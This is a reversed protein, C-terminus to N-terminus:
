DKIQDTTTFHYETLSRFIEGPKLITSPFNDHNPSDPFHQTELCFASRYKYPQDGKGLDSSDLFNGSYFQVGPQTTFVELVRGTKPDTARAALSFTKPDTKDLVFNHDYGHGNKLQTNDENIREGISVPTTFDFPTGKVPAIEGTPILTSDIPTYQEARIMLEHDTITGRGAGHLNFFAHNTLNVVTEKDTIATYDIRLTNDEDLSYLVKINMKGPFGEERDGSFYQLQLHQNDLKHANWVANSFGGPGGHLTNVGNNIPLQYRKGNLTFNGRAIRNAYRGVLAGFYIENANLYGNINDFGLVVDEFDGNKDPATMAVIRGGYNTIAVQMGQENTLFFLDTKRGNVTTQFDSANM